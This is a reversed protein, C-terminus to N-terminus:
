LPTRGERISAFFEEMMGQNPDSGWFHWGLGQSAGQYVDLKQNFYDARLVGGSGILDTKVNGWTPWYSPRSWSADLSIFLGNDFTIMLLGATDVDVTDPHFLNDVEAYVEVPEAGTYWRVLDVVHVTHDMVAGGGALTKDSFWKRHYDPNEGQNTTNACHLQGLDGRDLAAKIQAASASFRMPLAIMLNVGAVDCAAVMAEADPLTTAIPKECLVHVGAEAAMVTLDRHRNNESCVIVGDLGEALLAEYSDFLPSDFVEAYHKGREVDHDAMGVYEIGPTNRLNGIYGEAHLHAFSMIGIRLTDM